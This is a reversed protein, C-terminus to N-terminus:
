RNSMRSCPSLSVTKKSMHFRMKASKTLRIETMEVLPLFRKRTRYSAIMLCRFFSEERENRFSFLVARNYIGFWNHCGKPHVIERARLSSSTEFKSLSAAKTPANTWTSTASARASALTPTMGALAASCIPLTAGALNSRAANVVPVIREPNGIM